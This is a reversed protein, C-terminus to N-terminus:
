YPPGLSEGILNKISEGFMKLRGRIVAKLFLGEQSPSM